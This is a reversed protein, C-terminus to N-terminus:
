NYDSTCLRWPNSFGDTKVDLDSVIAAKDLFKLEDSHELKQSGEIASTKVPLEFLPSSDNTPAM